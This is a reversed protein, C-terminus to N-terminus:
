IAEKEETVQVAFAKVRDLQEPTLTHLFALQDRQQGQHKLIKVVHHAQNLADDVAIHLTGGRAPEINPHQAKITRYCRQNYFKWPHDDHGTARFASRLITLDFSPDNGWVKIQDLPAHKALFATTQDLAKAIHVGSLRMRARAAQPQDLWWSFTEADVQGGFSQHSMPDIDIQLSDLVELRQECFIAVGIQKILAQPGNGLTELDLMANISCETM